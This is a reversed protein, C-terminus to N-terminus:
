VVSLTTKSGELDSQGLNSHNAVVPWMGHQTGNGAPMIAGTPCHKPVQTRRALLPHLVLCGLLQLLQLFKFFSFFDCLGHKLTERM